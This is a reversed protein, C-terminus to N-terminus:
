WLRPDQSRPPFATRFGKAYRQKNLVSREFDRKYPDQHCSILNRLLATLLIRQPELLSLRPSEPLVVCM